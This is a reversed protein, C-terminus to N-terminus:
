WHSFTNESHNQHLFKVATLDTAIERQLLWKLIFVVSVFSTTGSVETVGHVVTESVGGCCWGGLRRGWGNVHDWHPWCRCSSSFDWGWFSLRRCWWFLQTTEARSVDVGVYVRLGQDHLIIIFLTNISVCNSGHRKEAGLRCCPTSILCFILQVINAWATSLSPDM